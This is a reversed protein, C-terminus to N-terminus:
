STFNCEFRWCLCWRRKISHLKLQKVCFCVTIAEGTHRIHVLKCPTHKTKNLWNCLLTLVVALTQVNSKISM